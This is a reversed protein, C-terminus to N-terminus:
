SITSGADFDERIKSPLNFDDADSLHASGDSILRLLSRESNEEPRQLRYIAGLSRIEQPEMVLSLSEPHALLEANEFNDIYSYAAPISLATLSATGLLLFSRRNMTINTMDCRTNTLM